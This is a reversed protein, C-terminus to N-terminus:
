RDLDTRRCLNESRLRASGGEESIEIDGNHHLEFHDNMMALYRSVDIAESSQVRTPPKHSALENLAMFLGSLQTRARRLSDHAEVVIDLTV